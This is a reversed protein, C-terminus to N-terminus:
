NATVAVYCGGAVGSFCTYELHVATNSIDVAGAGAGNWNDAGTSSLAVSSIGYTIDRTTTLAIILKVKAGATYNSLTIAATGSPATWLILSDVAFDITCTTGGSITRIGGDNIIVKPTTIRGSTGIAINGASINGTATTLYAATNANASTVANSVQTNVYSVVASNATVIATNAATINARLASIYTDTEIGLLTGAITTFTGKTGSVNGTTVNGTVALSTLVGVSTINTQAGTTVIGATVASTAQGSLTATIINAQFNGNSDRSVMTGATANPTSDSTFTLVGIEQTGVNGNIKLHSGVGATAYTLSNTAAIRKWHTGDFIVFDGAEFTESGDGIDRTGGVTVIYEWGASVGAPLSDSLAPSNTSANWSGKLVIAGTLSTPIQTIDLKGDIGLTAVYAAGPIAKQTLPIGATTQVSGDTTFTISNASVGIDTISAVQQSVISGAPTTWFNIKSGKASDTFNETAVSEIRTGGSGWTTTGFGNSSLRSLIDNQKIPEPAATTGRASYSAWVAYSNNGGTSNSAGYARQVIRSNKDPRSVTQILTDPFITDPDTGGSGNFSVMAETPSFTVNDFQAKRRVYFTGTDNTAGVNIPLGASASTLTTDVIVLNGVALNQAGNLYLTGNNVTMEIDNYTTQDQLHISHPGIYVNGWRHTPSGLNLSADTPNPVLSAVIANPLYPVTQPTPYSAGDFYIGGDGLHLHNWRLADTGIGYINDQGPTLTDTVINVAEIGIPQGGPTVGDSLKLTGTAEDYFLRGKEGIYTNHDGNFRSSWVKHLKAM